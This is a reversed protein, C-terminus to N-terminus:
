SVQDNQTSVPLLWCSSRERHLVTGPVAHDQAHQHIARDCADVSLIGPAVEVYDICQGALTCMVILVQTLIM